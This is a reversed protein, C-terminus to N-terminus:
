VREVFVGDREFLKPRDSLLESGVAFGLKRSQVEALYDFRLFKGSRLDELIGSVASHTLCGDFRRLNVV